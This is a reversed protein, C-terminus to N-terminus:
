SKLPPGTYFFTRYTKEDYMFNDNCLINFCSAYSDWLSNLSGEAPWKTAGTTGFDPEDVGRAPCGTPM